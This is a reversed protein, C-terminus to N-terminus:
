SGGFETYYYNPITNIEVKNERLFVEDESTPLVDHGLYLKCGRTFDDSKVFNSLEEDTFIIAINKSKRLDASNELEVLEKIHFLLENAYEYYFKKDTLLYEVKYYKLKADHGENEIAKKIREYSIDRCINNENTTVAISSCRKDYNKNFRMTAHMTTASGAFFDLIIGDDREAMVQYIIEEIMEVPKVTEFGHNKNGLIKSLEAKASEATGFEKASFFGWFPKIINEEEDERRVKRIVKGNEITINGADLCEQITECGLKWQNGVRPMIGLIPFVMTERGRMGETGMQGVEEARFPGNEDCDPYEKQGIIHCSFEARESFNKYVLIYEIKQQLMRKATKTNQCKNRKEWAITGLFRLEGFVNDCILKLVPYENDDISIFIYGTPSLLDKACILRKKIFSAWKSHRFMDNGDIREDNYIFEGRNTNYPPDIYILDIKKFHTKQLLKLAALNDGEILFNTEQTGDIFLNEEESLIPVHTKLLNDIVELHEEFVLGYRQGLIEKELDNLYILLEDKDWNQETESAFVYDRLIGIKLILKERKQKSVNTSM